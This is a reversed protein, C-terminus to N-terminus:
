DSQKMIKSLHIKLSSFRLRPDYIGFFESEKFFVNLPNALMHAIGNGPFDLLANSKGEACLLPRM